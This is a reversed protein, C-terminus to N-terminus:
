RSPARRISRGIRSLRHLVPERLVRWAAAGTPDYRLSRLVSAVFRMRRGRAYWGLATRVSYTAQNRRCLARLEPDDVARRCKAYVAIMWQAAPVPSLRTIQTAHVRVFTLEEDVGAAPAAAALRLWLDHDQALEFAEDFGGVQHYLEREVMVAPVAMGTEHALLPRLIWGSRPARPRPGMPLPRRDEGVGVAAVYCWRAEPEAALAALQKALKEPHWFDDSDLFALYRGRAEGAAINRLRPIRGTRPLRVVRVRPETVALDSLYEATGDTSGDDVVVIEWDAFTQARVSEIAEALLRLRNHTPLIVSVVPSSPM